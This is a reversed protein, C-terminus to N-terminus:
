AVLETFRSNAHSGFWANLKGDLMPTRGAVLAADAERRAFGHERVGHAVAHRRVPAPEAARDRVAERDHVGVVKRTRAQVQIHFPTADLNIM